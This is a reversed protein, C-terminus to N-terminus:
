LQDGKESALGDAAFAGTLPLSVGVTVPQSGGAVNTTSTTSTGGGCAALAVASAAAVATLALLRARHRRM